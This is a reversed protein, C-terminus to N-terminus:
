CPNTCEELGDWNTVALSMHMVLGAERVSRDHADSFVRIQARCLIGPSHGREPRYYHHLGTHQHPSPLVPSTGDEVQAVEGKLVRVIPQHLLIGDAFVHGDRNAEPADRQGHM